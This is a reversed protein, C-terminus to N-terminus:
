LLKSFENKEKSYLYFGLKNDTSETQVIWYEGDDSRSSIEIKQGQFMDVIQAFFDAEINTSDLIAYPTKFDNTKVAYIQDHNTTMALVDPELGCEDHLQEKTNASLDYIFLCREEGAQSDLYIMKTLNQNFTIPQMAKTTNLKMAQWDEDVYRYLNVKGGTVGGYAFVLEGNKDAIFTTNPEPSRTLSPSMKKTKINLRHVTSHLTKVDAGRVLDRKSRDEFLESGGPMPTSSILINKPNGPLLSVIRGWGYISEKKKRNSGVQKEGARWGYILDGSKGNYNVSYLEGYFKPINDWEERHLIEMVLRENTAWYFNGVDQMRGFNAGGVSKLSETEVVVLSRGVDNMIAMAMYKGDASLKVDGQDFRYGDVSSEMDAFSSTTFVISIFALLSIIRHTFM